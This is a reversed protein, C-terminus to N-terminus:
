CLLHAQKPMTVLALIARKQEVEKRAEGELKRVSVELRKLERAVLSQADSLRTFEEISQPTVAVKQPKTRPSLDQGTLILQNQYKHTLSVDIKTTVLMKRIGPRRFTEMLRHHVIDDTTVRGIPAVLVCYACEKIYGKTARVRAM